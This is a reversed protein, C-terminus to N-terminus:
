IMGNCIVYNLATFVVTSAIWVLFETKREHKIPGANMEFYAAVMMLPITSIYMGLTICAFLSM